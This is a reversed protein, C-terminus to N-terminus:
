GLERLILLAVTWNARMRPSRYDLLTRDLTDQIDLSTHASNSHVTPAISPTATEATSRGCERCIRDDRRLEADCNACRAALYM